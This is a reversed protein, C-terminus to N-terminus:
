IKANSVENKFTLFNDLINGIHNQYQEIDNSGWKTRSTGKTDFYKLFVHKTCIPIFKGEMDNEIIIRRKTPFLSNGYSRNIDANLLTLNGISKKAEEDNEEEGALLTLRVYLDEFKINTSKNNKIFDEMDLLLQPDQELENNLDMKAIELWELRDKENPTQSDIHEVDWSEKKFLEFPFKIIFYDDDEEKNNEMIVKHQKVIFEINFLLLLQRITEKKDDYSLGIFYNYLIEGDDNKVPNGDDDKQEEKSCEINEINKFGKIEKALAETFKDKKKRVVNGNEDKDDVTYMKYIDIISVGCYILFGIYHYWIPKNFWEEFTSFYDKINDWENKIDVFTSEDRFKNNFYRFTVYKDTGYKKEFDGADKKNAQKDINYILDFLFEIRAPIDNKEKNLFWWFNDDQLAYEMRDWENAIETKRQKVAEVDEKEELRRKQLFLAKILEANTLPIKGMNIRIFTDIPNAVDNIEYWIVQVTGSTDTRQDAMNYVFTNIIGDRINKTNGKAIFWDSIYTYAQYIFHFDITEASQGKAINEIFHKTDPRTEYELVFETKKYDGLLNAGQSVLYTLIIRITTLRQQGDIVEYWENNDLESQLKNMQKDEDTCKKVVIPQLCYFENDSKNKKTAFSYIDNLLDEVQQKDWRYGRQYAPIFFNLGLLDSISKLEIKNEAM